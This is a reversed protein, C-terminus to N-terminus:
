KSTEDRADSLKVSIKFVPVKALFFDTSFHYFPDDLDFFQPKIKLFARVLLLAGKSLFNM